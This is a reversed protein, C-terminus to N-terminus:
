APVNGTGSATETEATETEATEATETPKPKPKAKTDVIKTSATVEGAEKVLEIAGADVLHAILSELPELDGTEPDTRRADAFAGAPAATGARVNGFQILATYFESM